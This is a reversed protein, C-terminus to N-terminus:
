LYICSQVSNQIRVRGFIRDAVEKNLKRTGRKKKIDDLLQM